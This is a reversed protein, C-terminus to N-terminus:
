SVGRTLFLAALIPLCHTVAYKASAANDHHISVCLLRQLLNIQCAEAFESHLLDSWLKVKNTQRDMSILRDVTNNISSQAANGRQSAFMTVLDHLLSGFDNLNFVNVPNTSHNYIDSWGSACRDREFIERPRLRNSIPVRGKDRTAPEIGNSPSLEINKEITKGTSRFFM